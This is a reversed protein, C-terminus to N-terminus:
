TARQISSEVAVCMDSALRIPNRPTHIPMLAGRPPSLGMKPGIHGPLEERLDWAM